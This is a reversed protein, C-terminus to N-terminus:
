WIKNKLLLKMEGGFFWGEGSLRLCKHHWERGAGAMFIIYFCIAITLKQKNNNENGEGRTDM